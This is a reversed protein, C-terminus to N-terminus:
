VFHDMKSQFIKTSTFLLRRDLRAVFLSVVYACHGRFQASQAKRAGYRMLSISPCLYSHGDFSGLGAMGGRDPIQPRPLLPVYFRHLPQRASMATRHPQDRLPRLEGQAVAASLISAYRGLISIHGTGLMQLRAVDWTHYARSSAQM